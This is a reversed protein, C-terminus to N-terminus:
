KLPLSRRIGNVLDAVITRDGSQGERLPIRREDTTFWVRINGSESLDRSVAHHLVQQKLIKLGM